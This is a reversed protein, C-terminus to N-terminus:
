QFNVTKGNVYVTSAVGTLGDATFGSKTVQILFLASKSRLAGPRTAPLASLVEPPLSFSTAGAPAVCLFLASDNNPLDSSIGLVLVQGTAGSWNVGSQQSRSVTTINDRSLWTLPQPVTISAQLNQPGSVTYAGPNLFLTNQVGFLPLASGIPGGNGTVPISRAGGPGSVQFTGSYPPRPIGLALVDPVERTEFFDGVGQYVTCAGAPPLNVFPSFTFPGATQTITSYSLFDNTIDVPQNVGIDEHITMRTLALSGATGALPPDACQQSGNPSVAMSGFNSLMAHSTRVSVPVYCGTPANGPVVFDIQDLGSCCPSRGSYTVNAPVGGVWVEVPTSLNGLPPAQNDPATTPGLGTLYLIETQGPTASAQLSNSPTNTANVYNQLAAPGLGSGTFTFIGPSDHVIYVPAFNSRASNYTVRVSAWGLPAGSPMLANIQSQQVYLPIVPLTTAGQTVTISVAALTPNLPFTNSAAGQAPGLGSGFITFISGQAISGNPLGPAAYSAANVIGHLRIAPSQAFVTLPALFILQRFVARIM